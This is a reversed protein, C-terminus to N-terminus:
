TQCERYLRYLRSAQEGLTYRQLITRRAADGIKRRLEPRQLLRTLTDILQPLDDPKILYGNVGQEIVEDIGQGPCAIVPKGTSM